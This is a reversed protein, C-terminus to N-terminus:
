ASRTDPIMVTGKRYVNDFVWPRFILFPICVFCIIFLISQVIQLHKSFPRMLFVIFIAPTQNPLLMYVQLMYATRLLITVICAILIDVLLTEIAHVYNSLYTNENQHIFTFDYSHRRADSMSSHIFASMM